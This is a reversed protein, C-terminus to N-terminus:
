GGSTRALAAAAAPQSTVASDSPVCGNAPSYRLQSRWTSHRPRRAVGVGPVGTLRDNLAKPENRTNPYRGSVRSFDILLLMALTHVPRAASAPTPTALPSTLTPCRRRAAYRGPLPVVTSSRDGCGIRAASRVPMAAM